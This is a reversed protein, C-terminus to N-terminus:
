IEIPDQPSPPPSGKNKALTKAYFLMIVPKNAFRGETFVVDHGVPGGRPANDFTDIPYPMVYVTTDVTRWGGGGKRGFWAGEGVGVVFGGFSYDERPM